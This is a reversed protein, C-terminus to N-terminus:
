ALSKVLARSSGDRCAARDCGPWAWVLRRIRRGCSTQEMNM